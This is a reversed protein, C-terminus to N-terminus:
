KKWGTWQACLNKKPCSTCGKQERPLILNARIMAEHGKAITTLRNFDKRTRRIHRETGSVCDFIKLADATQGQVSTWALQMFTLGMDTMDFFQNGSAAFSTALWVLEIDGHKTRRVIPIDGSLVLTDSVRVKYRQGVAIIENEDKMEKGVLELIGKMVKQEMNVEHGRTPKVRSSLKVDEKSLKGFNLQGFKEKVAAYTPTLGNMRQMYYWLVTTKVNEAIREKESLVKVDKHVKELKWRLPCHKLRYLDEM